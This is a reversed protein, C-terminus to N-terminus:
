VLLMERTEHYTHPRFKNTEEVSGGVNIEVVLDQDQIILSCVLDLGVMEDGGGKRRRMM